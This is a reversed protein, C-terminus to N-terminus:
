VDSQTASFSFGELEQRSLKRSPFPSFLTKLSLDASGAMDLPTTRVSSPTGSDGPPSTVYLSREGRGGLERLPKGATDGQVLPEIRHGQLRFHHQYLLCQGPLPPRTKCVWTPEQDAPRGYYPLSPVHVWSHGPDQCPTESKTKRM